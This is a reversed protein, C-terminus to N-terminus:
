SVLKYRQKIKQMKSQLRYSIKFTMSLRRELTSNWWRLIQWALCRQSSMLTKLDQATHAILMAKLLQLKPNARRHFIWIALEQKRKLPHYNSLIKMKDLIWNPLAGLSTQIKVLAWIPLKRKFKIRFKLFRLSMVKISKKGPRMITLKSRARCWIKYWKRIKCFPSIRSNNPNMPRMMM